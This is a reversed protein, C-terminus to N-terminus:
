GVAETDVPGDLDLRLAAMGRAAHQKVTGVSVGMAAATEVETLDAFYRMVITERQRRPLRALARVLDIRRGDVPDGPRAPEPLPARRRRRWRDLALNVSVTTVWGAPQHRLSAWRSSARALAEMAVDEADERSGLVRYAARYATHFLGDFADDFLENGGGPDM